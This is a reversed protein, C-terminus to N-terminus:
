GERIDYFDSWDIPLFKNKWDIFGDDFVMKSRNHKKMWAFIHFVQDLHGKRPQALFSSLQAVQVFIDIRGLEVSWRLVGILNQYYNAQGDDLEESVDLEPRYGSTMPSAVKNLLKKGVKDLETEVNAVASKVYDDASMYWHTKGSTNGPIEFKGVNAGLYRDPAHYGKKTKPDEKLRYLASLNKMISEPDHSVALIDDVYILVYEWYKFGDPKTAERMWVDPDAECPKFGLDCMTQALHARWAAGSSKLGYLARVIIMRKGQRSGFEPGAVCFISERCDANLYANGIDAMLIDLDNLAAMTFAIRVSERSVVSSYTLSAPPETMHGGAVFRAKRDFDMKVDFVMHCNIQQYGIPVREDDELFKFAPMVNKMEKEIALKWLNTGTEADIELAEKVTKPVRIGFKHTRKWHRSKVKSIIRDRRRLVDKIWWAFAPEESIKNAVAYEAVEVPNSEKLDALPEWSTTGDKWTVLLKWGKTTRRRQRNAGQKETYGDDIGIANGDKKHESIEEMIIYQRGEEDVQSYLSEAIINASFEQTAGDSFEVEYVRTDLIPNSDARGTPDGNHDRKRRKVQGTQFSDGKPLLVQATIYKDFAEETYDDAEPMAAEPEFPQSNNTEEEDLDFLTELSPAGTIDDPGDLILKTAADFVRLEEIIAPDKLEDETLPQVTTRAIPVASIPLIWYCLAQGVRHAVGLWRGLTRKRDPFSGPEYYWVPVLWDYELWETIDPTNGTVHEYPTRNHLAYLPHAIRARIESVYVMCYDWLRKSAQTKTMLRVVQKKHERIGAEARNQWPSYPEVITQKIGGQNTRVKNWNGMTMEKAGDTHLETPVGVDEFLSSLAEGADSKFEMPVVKSFELDNIFMQAMKNGNLSKTTSFFTDSYFKTNLRNYRYQQQQTRYRRHIPHVAHRIGKQTTVKLTREATDLGIGWRRALDHAKVEPHRATSKTASVRVTNILGQVFADDVLTSSIDSFVAATECRRSLAHIQRTSTKDDKAVGTEEEERRRSVIGEQQEFTESYPDWGETSTMNVHTCTELERDTPLRTEIYSIVGNMRLPVRLAAEPFYLSHTSTESLHQPADDVVVGHKRMQNPCLLANQQRPLHLAQCAVLIFTEGTTHEYATGAHVIPVDKVPEYEDSFPHVNCTEGTYEIVKYHSGVVCTDAHSDLDSRGQDTGGASLAATKRDGVHRRRVGTQVGSVDSGRKKKKKFLGRLNAVVQM